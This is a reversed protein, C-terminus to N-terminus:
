LKRKGDEDARHSDLNDYTRQDFTCVRLHGGVHMAAHRSGRNEAAPYQPKLTWCDGSYKWTDHLVQM